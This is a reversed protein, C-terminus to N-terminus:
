PKKGAYLRRMEAKEAETMDAFTKPKSTAKSPDLADRLQRRLMNTPDDCSRGADAGVSSLLATRGQVHLSGGTGAHRRENARRYAGRNYNRRSM